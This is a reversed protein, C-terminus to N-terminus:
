TFVIISVEIEDNKNNDITCGLVIATDKPIKKSVTTAVDSVESLNIDPSAQINMILNKINDKPTEDCLNSGLAFNAANVARNEGKAYGFYFTAQSPCILIKGIDKYEINILSTECTIDCFLKLLKFIYDHIISFAEKLSSKGSIKDTIKENDIIFTCDSNEQINQIAHNANNLRASGEFAFPKILISITKIDMNKSIETIVSTAGGGTGGGLCSIIFVIDAGSLAKEIDKKSEEASLRGKSIVGGCGLGNAVNKGLQIKNQAKSSELLQKDTNMVWFEANNLDKSLIDNVINIAGAGIGIIKIKKDEKM